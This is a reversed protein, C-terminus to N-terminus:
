YRSWNAGDLMIRPLSKLQPSALVSQVTLEVVASSKVAICASNVHFVRSLRGM